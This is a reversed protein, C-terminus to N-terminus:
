KYGSDIWNNIEKTMVVINLSNQAQGSSIMENSFETCEVRVHEPFDINYQDIYHYSNGKPDAEHKKKGSVKRINNFIQDLDKVISKKKELCLEINNVIVAAVITKIEYNNDNTKLYFELQDYQNLNDIKGVMYYQRTDNFYDLTNLRIEEKSMIKSLDDGISFGEIEFDRVDDAKTLSQIVFILIFVSLFIRMEYM